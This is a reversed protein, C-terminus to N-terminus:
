CGYFLTFCYSDEPSVLLFYELLDLRFHLSQYLLSFSLLQHIMQHSFFYQNFDPLCIKRIHKVFEFLYLFLDSSFIQMCFKKWDTFDIRWILCIEKFLIFLFSEFKFKAEDSWQLFSNKIYLKYPFKWVKWSLQTVIHHHFLGLTKFLTQM